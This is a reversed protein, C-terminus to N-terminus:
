NSNYRAQALLRFEYLENKNKRISKLYEELLLVSCSHVKCSSIYQDLGTLQIKNYFIQYM